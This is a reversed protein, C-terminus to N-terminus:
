LGSVGKSIQDHSKPSQILPNQKAPCGLWHAPGFDPFDLITELLTELIFGFGFWDYPAHVSVIPRSIM